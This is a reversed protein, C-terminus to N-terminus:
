DEVGSADAKNASLPLGRELVQLRHEIEGTAQLLRAELEIMQKDKEKDKEEDEICRGIDLAAKRLRAGLLQMQDDIKSEMIYEQIEQAAVELRADLLDLERDQLCDQLYHTVDLAMNTKTEEEERKKIYVKRDLLSNTIKRTRRAGANAFSSLETDEHLKRNAETREVFIFLPLDVSPPLEIAKRRNPKQEVWRRALARAFPMLDDAVERGTLEPPVLNCKIVNAATLPLHASAMTAFFPRKSKILYHLSDQSLHKM